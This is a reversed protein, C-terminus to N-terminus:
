EAIQYVTAAPEPKGFKNVNESKKLKVYVVNKSIKERHELEDSTLQDRKNFYWFMPVDISMM